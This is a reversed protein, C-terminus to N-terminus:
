RILWELPRTLDNSEQDTEIVRIRDSQKAVARLAEEDEPLSGGLASIGYIRVDEYDSSHQLYQNLLPLYKAIYNTPDAGDDEAIDWASLVLALRRSEGSQLPSKALLQLIDVLKAQTPATAPSYPIVTSKAENETGSGDDNDNNLIEAQETVVVVPLPVEIRDVHIFLIVGLSEQALNKLDVTCSREEWIESWIEGSSDPLLLSLQENNLKVKIEVLKSDAIETRDMNECRRWKDALLNLRERDAPLADYELVTAAEGSRLLHWLAGIYTSKGSFPLGCVIVKRPATM